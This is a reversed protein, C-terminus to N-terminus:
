SIARNDRQQGHHYHKDTWLWHHHLLLVSNQLMQRKSNPLHHSFPRSVLVSRPQAVCRLQRVQTEVTRQDVVCERYEQFHCPCTCTLLLSINHGYMFEAHLLIFLLSLHLQCRVIYFFYFYMKITWSSDHSLTCNSCNPIYKFLVIIHYWVLISVHFM